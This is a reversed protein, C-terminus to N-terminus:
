FVGPPGTRRDGGRRQQNSATTSKSSTTTTGTIVQMGVNLDASPSRGQLRHLVVETNLGDTAGLRVPLVAPAGSEDIYWLRGVGAPPQGGVGVSSGWTQMQERMRRRTSDSAAAGRERM